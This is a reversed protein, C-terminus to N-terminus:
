PLRAVLSFDATVSEGPAVVVVGTDPVGRAHLTFGDNANSAPELAFFDKGVPIFVVVHSLLDDAEIDIDLADPYSITAAIPGSRGTLCDDVLATGLPRMTRFDLVPPLPGAPGDPMGNTLTYARECNIQLRAEGGLAAGDPSALTRVYYPHHGLGAPFPERDVNKLTTRVTLRPGDVTLAVRAVFTWPWNVGCYARSDFELVAHSADNDEVTWPFEVATGHLSFDDTGWRRLQYERGEWLLMGHRIRNSWPLLPYSAADWWEGLLHNPTPRLVDVWGDAVRVQGFALAGGNEPVVGVRWSESALTVVTLDSSTGLM